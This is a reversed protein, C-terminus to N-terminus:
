TPFVRSDPNLSQNHLSILMSSNSLWLTISINPNGWNPVLWRFCYLKEGEVGVGDVM